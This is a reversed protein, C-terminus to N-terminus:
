ENIVYNLWPRGFLGRILSLDHNAGGFGPAQGNQVSLERGSGAAEIQSEILQMNALLRSGIDRSTDRFLARNRILTM